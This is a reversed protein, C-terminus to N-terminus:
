GHDATCMCREAESAPEKPPKQGKEAAAKRIQMKGKQLAEQLGRIEAEYKVSEAYEAQPAVIDAQSHTPIISLFSPRHRSPLLILSCAECQRGWELGLYEILDQYHFISDFETQVLAM